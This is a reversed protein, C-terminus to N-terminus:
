RHLYVFTPEPRGVSCFHSFAYKRITQYTVWARSKSRFSLVNSRGSVIKWKDDVQRLDIRDPDFVFCLEGSLTGSPARGDTLWYQFESESSGAVCRENMGYHRVIDLARRADSEDTGLDDLLTDGETLVWGGDRRLVEVSDPRFSVCASNFRPPQVSQNELLSTFLLFLVFSLM